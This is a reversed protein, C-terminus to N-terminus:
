IRRWCAYKEGTPIVKREQGTTDKYCLLGTFILRKTGVNVVDFSYDWYDGPNLNELKIHEAHEEFNDIDILLTGASFTVPASEDSDTFWAM